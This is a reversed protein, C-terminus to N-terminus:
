AEVNDPTYFGRDAAYLDPVRGFTAEHQTLSPPVHVEDVPNGDLVRYDTILGRGRRAERFTCRRPRGGRRRARPM